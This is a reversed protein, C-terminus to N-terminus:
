RIWNFGYLTLSSDMVSSRSLFISLWYPSSLTLSFSFSSCHLSPFVSDVPTAYLRVLLYSVDKSSLGLVSEEKDRRYMNISCFSANKVNRSRQNTVQKTGKFYFHNKNKAYVYTYYLFSLTKSILPSLCNPGPWNQGPRLCSLYLKLALSSSIEVKGSVKIKRVSHLKILFYGSTWKQSKKAARTQYSHSKFYARQWLSLM